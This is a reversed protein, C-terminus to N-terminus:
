YERLDFYDYNGKPTGYEDDASNEYVRVCAPDVHVDMEGVDSRIYRWLPKNDMGEGAFTHLTQFNDSQALRPTTDTTSLFGLKLAQATFGTQLEITNPFEQECKDDGDILEEDVGPTYDGFSGLVHDIGDAIVGAIGTNGSPQKCNAYAFAKLSGFFQSDPDYVTDDCPDAHDPNSPDGPGPAQTPPNAVEGDSQDNGQFQPPLLASSSSTRLCVEDGGSAGATM